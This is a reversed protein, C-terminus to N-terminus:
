HLYEISYSRFGEPEEVDEFDPYQADADTAFPDILQDIYDGSAESASANDPTDEALVASPLYLLLNILVLMAAATIRPVPRREPQM